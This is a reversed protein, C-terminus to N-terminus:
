SVANKHHSHTLKKSLETSHKQQCRQKRGQEYNVVGVLFTSLPLVDIDLIQGLIGFVLAAASAAGFGQADTATFSIRWCNTSLQQWRRKSWASPTLERSRTFALHKATNALVKPHTANEITATLVLLAASKTEPEDGARCIM